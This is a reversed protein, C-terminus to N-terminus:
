RPLESLHLLTDLGRNVICGILQSRHKMAKFTLAAQFTLPTAFGSKWRIEYRLVCPIGIQANESVVARVVARSDIVSEGLVDQKDCSARDQKHRGGSRKLGKAIVDSNCPVRTPSGRPREVVRERQDLVGFLRGNDGYIWGAKGGTTAAQRRPVQHLMEPPVTNGSFDYLDIIYRYSGNRIRQLGFSALEAGIDHDSPCESVRFKAFLQQASYGPSQKLM